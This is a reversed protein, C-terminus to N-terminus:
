CTAIKPLSVQTCDNAVRRMVQLHNYPPNANCMYFIVGSASSAFGCAHSTHLSLTSAHAIIVHGLRRDIHLFPARGLIHQRCADALPYYELCPATRGLKSPAGRASQKDHVVNTANSEACRKASAQTCFKMGCHLPLMTRSFFMFTSDARSSALGTAVCTWDNPIARGSARTSCNADRSQYFPM